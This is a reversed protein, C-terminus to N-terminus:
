LPTRVQITIPIPVAQNDVFYQHLTNVDTNVAGDVGYSSGEASSEYADLTLDIVFQGNNVDLRMVSGAPEAVGGNHSVVIGGLIPGISGPSAFGDSTGVIGLTGGSNNQLDITSTNISGIGGATNYGALSFSGLDLFGATIDFAVPDPYQVDKCVGQYRITVPIYLRSGDEVVSPMQYPRKSVKVPGLVTGKAFHAIVADAVESPVVQGVNQRYGVLVQFFGRVDDYANEDWALNEPENPFFSAELWTGTDPPKAQRGPYIIEPMPSYDFTSLHQACAVLIETSLSM